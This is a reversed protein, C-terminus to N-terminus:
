LACCEFSYNINMNKIEAIKITNSIPQTIKDLYELSLIQLKKKYIGGPQMCGLTLKTNPMENKFAKFINEVEKLNPPTKDEFFTNKTPIFVIFIIESIKDKYTKLINLADYEHDIEGGNLGITVHPKVNFNKNLLTYFSSMMDKYYNNEYVNKYVKENGVVDFSISNHLEKLKNLYEDSNEIIGTHINYKLHYKNKLEKLKEYFPIIPVEIKNNMGGSILFSKIGENALKEIDEISKMNKLYHRNCHKCNLYCYNKTTSISKTQTLKVFEINKM